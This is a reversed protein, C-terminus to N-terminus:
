SRLAAPTSQVALSAAARSACGVMGATGLNPVGRGGGWEDGVAVTTKSCPTSAM